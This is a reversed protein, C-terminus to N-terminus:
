VALQWGLSLVSCFHLLREKGLLWVLGQRSGKQCLVPLVARAVLQADSPQSSHKM